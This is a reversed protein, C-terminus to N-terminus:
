MYQVKGVEGGFIVIASPFPASNKHGGFKLRGKLFRIEAYPFIFEHWYKTDTRAPILCVVFCDEQQITEYHAKEIWKSIERGYPHNMFVIEDIWDQMYGNDQKTYYKKCKANEKTACPDLTFDFEENLKDFLDQPTEWENSESKFHINNEEKM